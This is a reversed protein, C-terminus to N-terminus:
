AHAEEKTEVQNKIAYLGFAGIIVFSLGVQPNPADTIAGQVIPAVAGGAIDKVLGSGSEVSNFSIPLYLFSFDTQLRLHLTSWALYFM